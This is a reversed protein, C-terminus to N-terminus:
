EAARVQKYHPTKGTKPVFEFSYFNNHIRLFFVTATCPADM